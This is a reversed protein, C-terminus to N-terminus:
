ALQLVKREILIDRTRVFHHNDSLSEYPNQRLFKYFDYFLFLTVLQEFLRSNSAGAFLNAVGGGRKVYGSHLFYKHIKEPPKDCDVLLFAYTRALDYLPHGSAAKELDLIGSLALGDVVLTDHEEAQRFLVNGRVFDLHLPQQNPLADTEDLLAGLKYFSGTQTTSLKQQMARAIHPDAFYHEMRELILRYEDSVRPMEGGYTQASGHLRSMAMGLLKIHKMSYMEWAITAGHEFSYLSAYRERSVGKLRLIRDDLPYRVPLGSDHLHSSLANIRQIREVIAEERKYVLLNCLLGTSTEVIHSTNRYGSQVFDLRAFSLGYYKLAVKLQADSLKM